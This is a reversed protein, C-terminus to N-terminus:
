DHNFTHWCSSCGFKTVEKLTNHLDICMGAEGDSGNEHVVFKSFDTVVERHDGEISRRSSLMGAFNLLTNAEDLFKCATKNACKWIRAKRLHNYDVKEMKNDHPEVTKRDRM